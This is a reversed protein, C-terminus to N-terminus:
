LIQIYPEGSTGHCAYVYALDRAQDDAGHNRESQNEQVEGTTQNLPHPGM